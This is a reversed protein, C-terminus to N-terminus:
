TNWVLLCYVKGPEETHTRTNATRPHVKRGRAYRLMKLMNSLTRIDFKVLSWQSHTRSHASLMLFWCFCDEHCKRHPTQLWTNRWTHRRPPTLHPLLNCGAYVICSRIPDVEDLVLLNSPFVKRKASEKVRVSPENPRAKLMLNAGWSKRQSVVTVVAYGSDSLQQFHPFM